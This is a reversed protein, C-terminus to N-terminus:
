PRNTCTSTQLYKSNPMWRNRYHHMLNPQWWPSKQIPNANIGDRIYSAIGYAMGPIFETLNFGEIQLKQEDELHTEQLLIINANNEGALHRVLDRKARTLGEVNTIQTATKAALIIFYFPYLSIFLNTMLDDKNKHYVYLTVYGRKWTPLIINTIQTATKAALIIFYFPYLSIFMNAMLDDKNGDYLYLKYLNSFASKSLLWSLSTNFFVRTRSLGYTALHLKTQHERLSKAHTSNPKCLNALWLDNRPYRSLISMNYICYIGPLEFVPYSSSKNDRVIKKGDKISKMFLKIVRIVSLEFM